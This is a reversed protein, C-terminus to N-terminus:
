RWAHVDRNRRSPQYCRYRRNNQLLVTSLNKSFWSCDCAMCFECSLNVNQSFVLTATMCWEEVVITWLEVESCCVNCTNDVKWFSCLHSNQIAHSQEQNLLFRDVSSRTERFVVFFHVSTEGAQAEDLLKRFM